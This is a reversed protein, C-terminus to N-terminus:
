KASYKVIAAEIGLQRHIM